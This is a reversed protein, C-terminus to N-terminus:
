GMVKTEHFNRFSEKGSGCAYPDLNNPRILSHSLIVCCLDSKCPEAFCRTWLWELLVLGIAKHLEIVIVKM